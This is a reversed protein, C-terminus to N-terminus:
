ERIVVVLRVRVRVVFARIITIGRDANFDVIMQIIDKDTMDPNVKINAVYVMASEGRQLTLAGQLAPKPVTRTKVATNAKRRGAVQWRDNNKSAVMAFSKHDDLSVDLSTNHDVDPTVPEVVSHKVSRHTNIRDNIRRNVCDARQPNVDKSHKDENRKDPIVVPNVPRLVSPKKNANIGNHDSQDPNTETIKVAKEKTKIPSSACTPGQLRPGFFTGNTKQGITPLSTNLLPTDHEESISKILTHIRQFETETKKQFANLKSEAQIARAEM